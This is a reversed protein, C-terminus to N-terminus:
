GFITHAILGLGDVAIEAAKVLVWSTLTLAIAGGVLLCITGGVKSNVTKDAAHLVLATM